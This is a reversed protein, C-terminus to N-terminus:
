SQEHAGPKISMPHLTRKLKSVAIASRGNGTRFDHQLESGLESFDQRPRRFWKTNHCGRQIASERIRKLRKQGCSSSFIYSLVSLMFRIVM